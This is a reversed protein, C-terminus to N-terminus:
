DLFQIQPHEIGLAELKEMYSENNPTSRGQEDQLFIEKRDTLSVGQADYLYFWECINCEGGHHVIFYPQGDQESKVCALGSAAHDRMEDPPTIPTLAGNADLIGLQAGAEDTARIAFTVGECSQRLDPTSGEAQAMFAALLMPVTIWCAKM